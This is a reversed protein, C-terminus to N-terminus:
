ESRKGVTARQHLLSLILAQSRSPLPGLRLETVLGGHSNPCDAQRPRLKEDTFHPALALPDETEEGAGVEM